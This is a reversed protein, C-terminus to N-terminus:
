VGPGRHCCLMCCACWLGQMVSYCRDVMAEGSVLVLTVVMIVLM